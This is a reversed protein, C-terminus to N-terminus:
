LLEYDPHFSRNMANALISSLRFLEEDMAKPTVILDEQKNQYEEILEACKEGLVEEAIAYVSTVTAVGLAIVPIHLTDQDIQKRHNGIGSGPQIGTNNMQIVRNVRRLYRTALADVAVILDPRFANAVNEIIVSSEMGTQGMVGPALVAVERIGRWNSLVGQQYLHATVIVENVVRPGLADSVFDRNGLGVVLIRQIHRQKQMLNCLCRQIVDILESRQERDRLSTFSISIYDGPKKHLPNQQDHVIIHNIAIDGKHTETHRYGQGVSEKTIMEDAFDTYAICHRNKM